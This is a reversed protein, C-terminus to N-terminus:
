MSFFWYFYEDTEKMDVLNQINALTKHYAENEKKQKIKLKYKEMWNNYNNNLHKKQKDFFNLPKSRCRNGFLSRMIKGKIFHMISYREVFYQKIFNIIIKLYVNLFSNYKNYIKETWEEKVYNIILNNINTILEEETIDRRKLNIKLYEFIKDNCLEIIDFGLDDVKWDYDNKLWVNKYPQKITRKFSIRIMPCITDSLEPLNYRTVFEKWTPRIAIGNIKYANILRLINQWYNFASKCLGPNIVKFNMINDWTHNNDELYKRRSENVLDKYIELAFIFKRYECNLLPILKNIPRWSHEVVNHNSKHMGINKFKENDPNLSGTQKCCTDLKHRAGHWKDIFWKALGIALCTYIVKQTLLDDDNIAWDHMKEGLLRDIINCAMDYGFACLVRQFYLTNKWILDSLKMLIYSPSENWIICQLSLMIGYCSMVSFLGCSRTTTGSIIADDNRCGKKRQGCNLNEGSLM